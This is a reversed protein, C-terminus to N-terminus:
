EYDGGDEQDELIFDTQWMLSTKVMDPTFNVVQHKKHYQDKIYLSQAGQGYYYSRPVLSGDKYKIIVKGRSFFEQRLYEEIDNTILLRLSCIKDRGKATLDHAALGSELLIKLARRVVVSSSYGAEAAVDENIPRYYTPRNFKLRQIAEFVKMITQLTLVRHNNKSNLAKIMSEKEM